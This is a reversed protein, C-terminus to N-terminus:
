RPRWRRSTRAPGDVGAPAPRDAHHPRRPRAPPHAAPPDGERLDLQQWHELVEDRALDLWAGGDIRLATVLWNPLNVMSENVIRHGDVVDALRNYTGAM